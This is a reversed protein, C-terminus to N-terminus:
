PTPHERAITSWVSDFWERARTVYQGDISEPDDGPHHFLTTDKGMVDFVDHREGHITVSHPVVPYFGFFVDRHNMVYLKFLPPVGHRRVEVNVKPVLGLEGLETVADTVAAVSRDSIGAARDRFDPDDAHDAARCPLAWPVGADPLLMRVEISAPALRGARIQDLPEALAGALTEGSFGAFDIAVNEAGFAREVHPRLGVPREPRARVFVGSGQRSVVLGEDRLLRIAQLVTMRAVGYHRALEPGSPLKEGATFRRTLIAARLDNAVQQYPPRPDDPDLPM